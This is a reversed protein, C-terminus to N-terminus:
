RAQGRPRTSAMAQYVAWANLLPPVVTPRRVRHAQMMALKIQSATAGSFISHLLAITGTVFPTAASTGNSMASEDLPALSTIDEGCASLGRRGISGGLTSYGIPRGQRDCAAVPIVWPHRTIASSGVIGENGAAAVVVVGRRACYSLAEELAAEGQPTHQVLAASLNLINAGADACEIIATALEQPPASPIASAATTESFIPRVLLTCNPCIAPAGSGRRGVLIGAVFTGHTCAYSGARTCTGRLAGAIERINVGALDKHDINVPGDILAITTEPRGSSLRMLPSLHVLDLPDKGTQTAIVPPGFRGSAIHSFPCM